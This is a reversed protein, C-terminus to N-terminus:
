VADDGRAARLEAVSQTVVALGDEYLGAPMLRIAEERDLNTLDPNAEIFNLLRRDDVLWAVYRWGLDNVMREIIQRVEPDDIYVAVMRRDDDTFPGTPIGRRPQTRNLTAVSAAVLSLM